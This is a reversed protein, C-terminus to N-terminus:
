ERDIYIIGQDGFIDSQLSLRRDIARLEKEIKEYDFFSMNFELEEDLTIDSTIQFKESLMKKTTELLTENTM